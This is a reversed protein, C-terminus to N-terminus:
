FEGEEYKINVCRVFLTSSNVKLIIDDDKNTISIGESMNVHTLQTNNILSADSVGTLELHITVWDFERSTDQTALSMRMTSPSIIDIGRFEANIFNDFRQLFANYDKLPKM